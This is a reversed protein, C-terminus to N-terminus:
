LAPTTTQDDAPALRDFATAAFGHGLWASPLLVFMTVATSVGATIPTSPTGIIAVSVAGGLYTLAILPIVVLLLMAPALM